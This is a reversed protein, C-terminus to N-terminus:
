LFYFIDNKKYSIILFFIVKAAAFNGVFVL